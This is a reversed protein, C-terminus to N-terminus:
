TKKQTNLNQCFIHILMRMFLALSLKPLIKSCPMNIQEASQVLERSLNWDADTFDKSMGLRNMKLSSMGILSVHETVDM